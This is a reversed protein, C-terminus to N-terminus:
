ETKEIFRRAMSQAKTKKSKLSEMLEKSGSYVNCHDALRKMFLQRELCDHRYFESNLFYTVPEENRETTFEDGVVVHKISHQRITEIFADVDNGTLNELFPKIMLGSMLGLKNCNDFNEFRHALPPANIEIKENDTIAACSTLLVFQNAYQQIDSIAQLSDESVCQKTAIQVRNGQQLFAYILEVTETFSNKSFPESYCGLSVLTGNQGQKYRKDNIVQNFLVQAPVIEEDFEFSTQHPLYCYTCGSECGLHTSIFVRSGDHEFVIHNTLDKKV